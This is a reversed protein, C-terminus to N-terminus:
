TVDDDRVLRSAVNPDRLLSVLKDVEASEIGRAAARSRVQAEIEATLADKGPGTIERAFLKKIGAITADALNDAAKDELKAIYGSWFHRLAGLLVPAMLTGAIEMGFDGAQREPRDIDRLVADLAHGGNSQEAVDEFVATEVPDGSAEILAGGLWLTLEDANKM